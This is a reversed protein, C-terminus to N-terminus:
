CNEEEEEEVELAMEWDVMEREYAERDYVEWVDEERGGVAGLLEEGVLEETEEWMQRISPKIGDLDGKWADAFALNAFAAREEEEEEEDVILQEEEEEEDGAELWAYTEASSAAMRQGIEDEEEVGGSGGDGSRYGDDIDLWGLVAEIDAVHRQYEVNARM